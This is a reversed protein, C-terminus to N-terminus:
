DEVELILIWFFTHCLFVIEALNDFDNIIVVGKCCGLVARGKVSLARSHLLSRIQLDFM